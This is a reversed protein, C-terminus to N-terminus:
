APRFRPVVYPGEPIVAIEVSNQRVISERIAEEVSLVQQVFTRELDKDSLNTTFLKISGQRLPKLLMETQWEDILAENRGYLIEM